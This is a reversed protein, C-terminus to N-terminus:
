FPRELRATPYLVHLIYQQQESTLKKSALRNSREAERRFNRARICIADHELHASRAALEAEQQLAKLDANWLEILLKGENVQEGEKVQIASIQGGIPLSLKARQCAKVTGARTNAITREVLGTEVLTTTVVIPDPRTSYWFLTIGAALLILLLM